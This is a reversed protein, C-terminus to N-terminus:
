PFVPPFVSREAPPYWGLIVFGAVILLWVLTLSIIALVHWEERVLSRWWLRSFEKQQAQSAVMAHLDHKRDHVDHKRLVTSFCSKITSVMLM